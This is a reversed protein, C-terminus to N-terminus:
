LRATSVYVISKKYLISFGDGLHELIHHLIMDDVSNNEFPLKDIELNLVYDPNCKPDSDINLYGNIRKSGSGLNLKM